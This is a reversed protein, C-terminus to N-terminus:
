RPTTTRGTLVGVPPIAGYQGSPPPTQGFGGAGCPRWRSSPWCYTMPGRPVFSAAAARGSVCTAQWRAAASRGVRVRRGRLDRIRRGAPRAWYGRRAVEGARRRRPSSNLPRMSADACGEKRWRRRLGCRLAGRPCLAGCGAAQLFREVFATGAEPGLPAPCGLVRTCFRDCGCEEGVYAGPWVMRLRAGTRRRTSPACVRAHWRGCVGARCGTSCPASPAALKWRTSWWPNGRWARCVEEPSSSSEPGGLAPSGSARSVQMAPSHDLIVVGPTVGPHPRQHARPHLLPLLHFRGGGGGRSTFGAPLIGFGSSEGFGRGHLAPNKLQSFRHVAALGYCGNDRHRLGRPWGAPACRQHGSPREIPCGFCFSIDRPPLSAMIAKGPCCSRHRGQVAEGAAPSAELSHHPARAPEAQAANLPPLGGLATQLPGGGFGHRNAGPPSTVRDRAWIERGGALRGLPLAGAGGEEVFPEIQAVVLVRECRALAEAVNRLFPWVAGAEAVGGAGGAGAIM